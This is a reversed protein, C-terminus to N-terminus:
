GILEVRLLTWGLSYSVQPFLMDSGLDHGSAALQVTEAVSTTSLAHELWQSVIYPDHGLAEHVLRAQLPDAPSLVDLPEILRALAARPGAAAAAAEVRGAFRAYSPRDTAAGFEANFSAKQARLWTTSDSRRLGLHM